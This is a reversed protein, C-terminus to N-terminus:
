VTGKDPQPRLRNEHGTFSVLPEEFFPQDSDPFSKEPCELVFSSIEDRIIQEM